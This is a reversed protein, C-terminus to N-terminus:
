KAGVTFQIYSLDKLYIRFTYTTGKTLNSTSLNFIWQNTSWRFASDPIDTYTAENVNDVTGRSYTLMTVSGYGSAFVAAANSIPNGSADCVTFKVPVTSGQKFVSTGNANIPPLIV